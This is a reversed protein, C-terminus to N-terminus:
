TPKTTGHNSIWSLIPNQLLKAKKRNKKKKRKTTLLSANLKSEKLKPTKMKTMPDSSTSMTMMKKKKRHPLPQPQSNLQVVKSPRTVLSHNVIGIKVLIVSASRVKPHPGNRV